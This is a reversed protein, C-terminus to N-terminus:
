GLRTGGLPRDHAEHPGHDAQAARDRPLVPYPEGLRREQAQLMGRRRDPGHPGHFLGQIRAAYEIRALHELYEPYPFAPAELHPQRPIMRSKAKETQGRMRRGRWDPPKIYRFARFSWPKLDNASGVVRRKSGPTVATTPGFPHPLDLMASEIRQTRPSCLAFASRPPFICSTMKSPASVRRAAWIHSTEISRVSHSFCSPLSNWSISIVLLTWLSPWPSYRKLPWAQRRLSMWLSKM